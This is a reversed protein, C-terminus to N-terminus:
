GAADAKTRTLVGAALFRWRSCPRPRHAYSAGPGALFLAAHAVEESSGYRQMPIARGYNRRTAPSHMRKVLETEIAGPALANVTVGAEALEVALVKTLNIVGAKAAGYAARGTGGRLGATSALTVIRGYGREVM